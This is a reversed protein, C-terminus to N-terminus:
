LSRLFNLLDQKQTETLGNFIRIVGNAESGPGAHDEIAQMLDSTRGDHLFFLRQGIGWLPATRFQDPGAGGQSVGDALGSGMHHILLDSFLNAQVNSLAAVYSTGTTMSPTHCAACKAVNIFVNRGNQISQSCGTGTCSPQPQDLFRMFNSFAVIDSPGAVTSTVDFNTADEPIANMICGAPLPTPPYGREDPFLENTVGMEVNYAEGAFMLLSKNQAKWGFRTISGDNGSRNFAGSIGLSRKQQGAASFAAQLESDYVAEVLGLGFTPTPIRFIANNAAVAAAFDPQQINCGPADSRGAIVFLDHVGGDPTGDPNRVFRVERVPGNATIFSPLTNKAGAVASDAVQPNTAPSTGGLAPQAHCAGCSIDNFRPGLGQPVTEVEAFVAAAANFFALENQSLGQLPGGAGPPGGRPGPDLTKGGSGGGGGGGGGHHNPTAANQATQVFQQLPDFGGRDQSFAPGSLATAGLMTAAIGAVPGRWAYKTM